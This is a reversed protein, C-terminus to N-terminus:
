HSGQAESQPVACQGDACRGTWKLRNKAFLQYASDLGQRVGFVRTAGIAWRFGVRGYLQRFVEVGTVMEGNAFRGHIEEMLTEFSLGTVAVADFDEAFIDTFILRNHKDMRRLMNIERSCLACGGDYFVEFREELTIKAM